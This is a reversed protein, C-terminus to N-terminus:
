QLVNKLHGITQCPEGDLPCKRLLSMIDKGAGVQKALVEDGQLLATKRDNILEFSRQTMADSIELMRRIDRGPMLRLMKNILWDPFVYSLKPVFVTLLPLLALVPSRLTPSTLTLM